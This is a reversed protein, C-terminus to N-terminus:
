KGKQIKQSSKNSLTEEHGKCDVTEGSEEASTTIEECSKAVNTGERLEKKKNRTLGSLIYVWFFM